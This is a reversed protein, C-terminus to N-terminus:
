GGTFAKPFWAIVVARKGKFDALSYSKGDSGPLTFAPAPDGADPGKSPAAAALILALGGLILPHRM